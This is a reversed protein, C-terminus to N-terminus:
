GRTVAADCRRETRFVSTKEQARGIFLVGEDGTFWALHEHM